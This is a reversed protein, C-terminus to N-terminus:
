YECGPNGQGVAAHDMKNDRMLRKQHHHSQVEVPEGSLLLDKSVFKRFPVQRTSFGVKQEMFDFCVPCSVGFTGILDHEELSLFIEIEEGCSCRFDYNPM